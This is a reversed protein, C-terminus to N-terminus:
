LNNQMNGLQYSVDSGQVLYYNPDKSKVHCLVSTSSCCHFVTLFSLKCDSLSLFLGLIDPIRESCRSTKLETIDAAMM